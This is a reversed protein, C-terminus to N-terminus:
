LRRAVAFYAATAMGAFISILVYLVARGAAETRSTAAIAAGNALASFFVLVDLVTWVADAARRPCLFVKVLARWGLVLTLIPTYPNEFTGHVVAGLLLLAAALLSIHRGPIGDKRQPLVMQTVVALPVYLLLQFLLAHDSEGVMTEPRLFRATVLVYLWLALVTADQLGLSEEASEAAEEAEKVGDRVRARVDANVEATADAKADVRALVRQARRFMETVNQSLAAVLFIGVVALAMLEALSVPDRRWYLVGDRYVIDLAMDTVDCLSVEYRHDGVTLARGNDPGQCAGAREVEALLPTRPLRSFDDPVDAAVAPLWLDGSAADRCLADPTPACTVRNWTGALRAGSSVWGSAVHLGRVTLRLYRATLRATLLSGHDWPLAKAEGALVIFPFADDKIPHFPMPPYNFAKLVFLFTFETMARKMVRKM